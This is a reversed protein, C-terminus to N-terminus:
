KKLIGGLIGQIPTPVPTYLLMKFDSLAFDEKLNQDLYSSAGHEPFFYAPLFLIKM